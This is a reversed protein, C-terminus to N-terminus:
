GATQTATGDLWSAMTNVIRAKAADADLRRWSPVMEVMGRLEECVDFMQEAARDMSVSVTVSMAGVVPM